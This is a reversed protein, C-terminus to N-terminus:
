AGSKLSEDSIDTTVHRHPNWVRDMIKLVSRFREIELELGHLFGACLAGANALSVHKPLEQDEAQGITKKDLPAFMNLVDDIKKDREPSGTKHACDNRLRNISNILNWIEGDHEDLSIARAFLVKDAFSLRMKTLYEPHFVFRELISNLREEIFLHVKLIVVLDLDVYQLADCFEGALNEM